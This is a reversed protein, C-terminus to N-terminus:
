ASISQDSESNETSGSALELLPIMVIVTTGTRDSQIELSGGLERVRERMGAIGVGAGGNGDTFGNLRGKPIGCGNDKIKLRIKNAGLLLSIEVASAGSHRHVNTLTEQVSRFLAIEVDKHLRRLEPSVAANPSGM